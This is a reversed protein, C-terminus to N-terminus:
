KVCILVSQTSVVTYSILHPLAGINNLVAVLTVEVTYVLLKCYPM